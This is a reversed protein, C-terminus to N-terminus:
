SADQIKNIRQLDKAQARVLPLAVTRVLMARQVGQMCLVPHGSVSMARCM